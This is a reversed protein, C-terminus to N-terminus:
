ANQPSIMVTVVRHTVVYMYVKCSVVVWLTLGFRKTYAVHGGAQRHRAVESAEFLNM